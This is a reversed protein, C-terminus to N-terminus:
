PLVERHRVPPGGGPTFAADGFHGFLAAQWDLGYAVVILGLLMLTFIWSSMTRRTM